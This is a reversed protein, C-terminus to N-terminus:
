FMSLQRFENGGQSRGVCKEKAVNDMGPSATIGHPLVKYPGVACGVPDCSLVGRIISAANNGRLKDDVDIWWVNGTSCEVIVLVDVDLDTKRILKYIAMKSVFQTGKIQVRQWRIEGHLQMMRDWEPNNDSPPICIRHGEKLAWCDFLREANGGIITRYHDGCMGGGYTLRKNKAEQKLINFCELCHKGSKTIKNCRSCLNPQKRLLAKCENCYKKRKAKLVGCSCVDIRSPKVRTNKIVRCGNCLSGFGDRKTIFENGCDRCTRRRYSGVRCENCYQRKHSEHLYDGSVVGFFMDGCGRCQNQYEVGMIDSKRNDRSM